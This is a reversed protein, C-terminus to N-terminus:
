QVVLDYEVNYNSSCPYGADTEAINVMVLGYAKSGDALFNVQFSEQYNMGNIIFSCDNAVESCGVNQLDSCTSYPPLRITGDANTYVTTDPIDGCNGYLETLHVTYQAQSKACFNATSPASADETGADSPKGVSAEMQSGEADVDSSSDTVKADKGADTLNPPSSPVPSPNQMDSNVNDDANSIYPDIKGGCALSSFIVVSSFILGLKMTLTDKKNFSFFNKLHKKM